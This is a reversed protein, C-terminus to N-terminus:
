KVAQGGSQGSLTQALGNFDKFVADVFKTTSDLRVIFGTVLAAGIVLAIIERVNSM